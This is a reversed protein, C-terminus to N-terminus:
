GGYRVSGVQPSSLMPSAITGSQQQFSSWPTVSLSDSMSSSASSYGISGTLSSGSLASWNVSSGPTVSPGPKLSPGPNLNPSVNPSLNPSLAPSPLPRAGVTAMPAVQTNLYNGQPGPASRTIPRPPPVYAIAGSPALPGTQLYNARIESPMAGSARVDMRVQSPLAATQYRATPPAYRVSGVGGGYIQRNVQYQAVCLLPVVTWVWIFAPLAPTSRAPRFLCRLMAM